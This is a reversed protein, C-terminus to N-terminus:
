IDVVLYRTSSSSVTTQHEPNSPNCELVYWTRRVVSYGSIGVTRESEVILVKVSFQICTACMSKENDNTALGKGNESQM